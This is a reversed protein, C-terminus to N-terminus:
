PAPLTLLLFTQPIGLVGVQGGQGLRAWGSRVQVAWRIWSSTFQGSSVCRGSGVQRMRVTGIGCTIWTCDGSLVQFINAMKRFNRNKKKFFVLDLGSWVLLCHGTPWTPTKFYFLQPLKWPVDDM